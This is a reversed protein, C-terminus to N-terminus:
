PMWEWELDDLLDRLVFAPDEAVDSRFIPSGTGVLVWIAIEPDHHASIWCNPTWRTCRVKHGIRLHHLAAGGTM